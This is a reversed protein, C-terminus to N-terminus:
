IGKMRIAIERDITKVLSNIHGALPSRLSHPMKAIELDKQELMVQKMVELNIISAASEMPLLNQRFQLLEMKEKDILWVQGSEKNLLYDGTIVYGGSDKQVVQNISGAQVPVMGGPSGSGGGASAPLPEGFGGVPLGAGGQLGGPGPQGPGPAASNGPDISNLVAGATSSGIPGPNGSQADGLAKQFFGSAM